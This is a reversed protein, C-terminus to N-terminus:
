YECYKVSKPLFNIVVDIYRHAAHMLDHLDTYESEFLHESACVDSYTLMLSQWSFRM